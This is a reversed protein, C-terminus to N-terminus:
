EKMNWTGEKTYFDKRHRAIKWGYELQENFETSGYVFYEILHKMLNVGAKSVLSITATPRPNCEIIFPEGEENEKIDFGILGDIQLKKCADICMREIETSEIIESYISVGLDMDYNAKVAIFLVEGHKCFCDVSYEAGSM